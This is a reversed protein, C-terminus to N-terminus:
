VRRVNQRTFAIIEDTNSGTGFVEKVGAEKLEPIDDEPIVGGVLVLVDDLGEDRLLKVVRPVLISHAGSLISIAVVDVDEELAAQMVQEPTQRLGTYVVEMGADRYARAIIKAGRDHSDLGIKTVLVKITRTM